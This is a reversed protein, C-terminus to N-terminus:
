EQKMKIGIELTKNEEIMVKHSGVTTQEAKARGLLPHWVKFYYEGPPINAIEFKGDVDTVAYYDSRVVSVYARMWPHLDCTVTIDEAKTPTYDKSDGPSIAANLPSNKVTSVRVNHLGPDSNKFTITSGAPVVVVPSTFMCGKQDSTIGERPTAETTKTYLNVVVDKIGGKESVVLLNSPISAEGQHGCDKANNAPIRLMMKPPTTGDYDVKGKVGGGFTVAPILLCAAFPHKRFSSYRM